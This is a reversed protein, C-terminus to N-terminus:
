CLWWNLTLNFTFFLKGLLSVTKKLTVLTLDHARLALAFYQQHVKLLQQWNIQRM